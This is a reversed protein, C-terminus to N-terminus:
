HYYFSQSFHHCKGEAAARASTPPPSLKLSSITSLALLAQANNVAKVVNVDAVRGASDVCFHVVVTGRGLWLGSSHDRIQRAISRKWQDYEASAADRAPDGTGGLADFISQAAAPQVLVLLFALFFAAAKM